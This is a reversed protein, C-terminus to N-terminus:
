VDCYLVFERFTLCNVNKNKRWSEPMNLENGVLTFQTDKYVRFVENVEQQWNPDVFPSDNNYGMIFVEKHGDFAALYIPLAVDCLTPTYPILFFEGPHALCMRATTYVASNEAYHSEKVTQLTEPRTSVFFDLRMDKWVDGTGYTQLRQTGLLGGKHNQLMTHDFWEADVASGIAIARNSIHQNTIPNDIWEKVQTKEGKSWRTSLVIYEGDYDARYKEILM